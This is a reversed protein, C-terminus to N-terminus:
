STDHPQLLETADSCVKQEKQAAIVKCSKKSLRDHVWQSSRPDFHEQHQTSSLYHPFPIDLCISDTIYYKINM